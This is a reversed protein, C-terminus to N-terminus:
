RRKRPRPKINKSGAIASAAAGARQAKVPPEPLPAWWQPVSMLRGEDDFWRLFSKRGIRVHGSRGAVLVRDNDPATAAPQWDTMREVNACVQPVLM